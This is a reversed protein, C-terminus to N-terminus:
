RGSPTRQRSRSGSQRPRAERQFRVSRPSGIPVTAAGLEKRLNTRLMDLVQDLNAGHGEALANMFLQATEIEDQTGFLLVDDMGAELDHEQEPTLQRNACSALSRYATVRYDIRQTRRTVALERSRAFLHTVLAGISAGALAAILPLWVNM